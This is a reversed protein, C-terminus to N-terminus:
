QPKQYSDLFENLLQEMRKPSIKSHATKPSGGSLDSGGWSDPSGAAISEQENLFKYLEPLPFKIWPSMRALTYKYQQEQGDKAPVEAVSLIAKIGDAVMKVRADSGMEKVMSWSKGGGLVEYRGDLPIQEAKEEIFNRIRGGIDKIIKAMGNGDMTSIKGQRRAERYPEYVWRLQAFTDLDHKMPYMGASMDLRNEIEVLQNVKWNDLLKPDECYMEFLTVSTSVDEDCDEVFLRAYPQGDKKFTEFLGLRIETLVQESTVATSTRDVGEHHNLNAAPLDFDRKTAGIVRGDLAIANPGCHKLFDEWSEKFRPEVNLEVPKPQPEIEPSFTEQM